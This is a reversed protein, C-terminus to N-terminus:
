RYLVVIKPVNSALMVGSWEQQKGPPPPQDAALLTPEPPVQGIPLDRFTVLNTV